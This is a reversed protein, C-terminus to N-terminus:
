CLTSVILRLFIVFKQNQTVNLNKVYKWKLIFHVKFAVFVMEPLCSLNQEKLSTKKFIGQSISEFYQIPIWLTSVLFKYHVFLIHSVGFFLICSEEMLTLLDAKLKLKPTVKQHRRGVVSLILLWFCLLEPRESLLGSVTGFFGPVPSKTECHCKDAQNTIAWKKVFAYFITSM